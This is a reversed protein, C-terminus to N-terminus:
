DNKRQYFVFASFISAIVAVILIVMLFYIWYMASALSQANGGSPTAAGPGGGYVGNIYSMVVNDSSTFADIITYVGNVLIMPSIMPFTIKWFTEWATAGDIKCSEYIAPSISQLAALFILMQVGSRNVIDFINNVATAVYSVIETGVKMNAFLQEFDMVSVLENSASSGTGTDIGGSGDANEFLIDSSAITEMIGTSLIVPVFFIARFVARGAMKQNLMVAMFLSFILIAPVDFALQKLGSVLAQSFAQNATFADLYNGLGIYELSYGAGGSESVYNIKHFSMLLSEYVMPLYILVFGILFPLIFFWGARAKRRDLSAIKKRKPKLLAKNETM